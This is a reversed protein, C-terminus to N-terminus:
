ASKRLLRMVMREVLSGLYFGLAAMGFTVLAVYIPLLGVALVPYHDALPHVYYLISRISFPWSDDRLLLYYTIGAAGLLGALSYMTILYRKNMKTQM